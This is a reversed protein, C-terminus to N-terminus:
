GLSSPLPAPDGPVEKSLFAILLFGGKDLPLMNCLYLFLMKVALYYIHM